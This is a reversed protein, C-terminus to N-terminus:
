SLGHRESLPAAVGERRRRAGYSIFVYSQEADPLASMEDSAGATRPDRVAWNTTQRAQGVPYNVEAAPSPAELWDGSGREV